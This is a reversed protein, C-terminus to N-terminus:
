STLVERVKSNLSLATFPKQLFSIGEELVGYKHILDENYGSIYLVKIDPILARINNALEVGNIGPLVVDIILLDFCSNTKQILKMAEEGNSAITISYGSGSLIDRILERVLDEDEVLLISESGGPMNSDQYPETLDSTSEEIIPLYIEFTTGKGIESYVRIGGNHQKVIGHVVSLGLGTGQGIERTTFFPEFIHAIVDESMGHGTDSVAIMVYWGPTIDLYHKTYIEDRKVNKTEIFLKGGDPMAQKSNICLNMIVQEIQRHDAMISGVDPSLAIEFEIDEGILRKLMVAFDTILKNPNIIRFDIFQKRSFALLQETLSKLRGAAKLVKNANSRLSNERSLENLTLESYGVVVTLLNNFDHAIGGALRGLAEMKQSQLLQEQTDKLESIKKSLENNLKRIEKYATELEIKEKKMDNFLMTRQIAIAAQNTISLLINLEDSSIAKKNLFDMSLVGVVKKDATIPICVHFPYGEGYPQRNACHHKNDSVFLLSDRIAKCDKIDYSKHPDFDPKISEKGQIAALELADQDKIMFIACSNPNFLKLVERGTALLMENLSIPLFAFMNNLKIITSLGSLNIDAEKNNDEMADQIKSSFPTSSNM